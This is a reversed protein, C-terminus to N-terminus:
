GALYIIDSAAIFGCIQFKGARDQRMETLIFSPYFEDLVSWAMVFSVGQINFLHESESPLRFMIKLGSKPQRYFPILIVRAPPFSQDFASFIYFILLRSSRSAQSRDKVPTLM